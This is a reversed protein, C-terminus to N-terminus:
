DAGELYELYKYIRLVERRGEKEKGGEVGDAEDEQMKRRLRDVWYWKWPRLGLKM